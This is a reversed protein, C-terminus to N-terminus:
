RDTAEDATRRREEDVQPVVHGYIDATTSVSSHGLMRSVRYMPVGRLMMETAFTHRFGHFGYNPVGAREVVAYWHRQRLNDPDLPMTGSASPHVWVSSAGRRAQRLVEDLPPHARAIDHCLSVTRYARGKTSTIKRRVWAREVTLAEHEFDVDAWRTGLAEGTRQGTKALQLYLPYHEADHDRAADLIAVLEAITWAKPKPREPAVSPLVSGLRLIPNRDITGDNVAGSLISSLVRYVNRVTKPARKLGRLWDRVERREIADLPTNKWAPLVHLELISEYSQRTSDKWGSRGKNDAKWTEIYDGVTPAVKAPPPLVSRLADRITTADGALDALALIRDVETAVIRAAAETSLTKRRREGHWNIDVEWQGDQRERVTVGM